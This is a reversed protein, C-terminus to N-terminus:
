ENNDDRDQYHSNIWTEYEIDNLQPSDRDSLWREYEAYEENNM